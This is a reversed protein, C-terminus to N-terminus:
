VLLLFNENFVGMECNLVVGACGVGDLQRVCIIHDLQVILLKVTQIRSASIFRRLTSFRLRSVAVVM